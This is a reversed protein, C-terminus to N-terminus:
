RTEAGGDGAGRDANRPSARVTNRWGRLTMAPDLGMPMLNLAALPFHGEETM